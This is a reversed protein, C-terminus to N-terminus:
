RGHGAPGVATLCALGPALRGTGGAGIALEGYVSHVLGGLVVTDERSTSLDLRQNLLKTTKLCNRRCVM